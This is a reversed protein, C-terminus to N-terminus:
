GLKIFGSLIPILFLGAGVGAARARGDGSLVFFGRHHDPLGQLVDRLLAFDDGHSVTAYIVRGTTFLISDPCVGFLM